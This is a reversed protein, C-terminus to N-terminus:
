ERSKMRFQTPTMSTKRTFLRTFYSWDEYGLEIAIEKVNMQTNFLMRKAQIIIENQIYETATLGSIRNTIENLYAPTINLKRAYDSSSKMTKQCSSVLARFQSMIAFPRGTMDNKIGKKCIEAIIGTYVSILSLTIEDFTNLGSMRRDLLSLCDDLDQMHQKDPIIGSKTSVNWLIYEDETRVLAKDVLLIWSDSDKYEILSHMQGPQIFFISPGYIQYTEFDIIGKAYGAKMYAFIYYNDRHLYQLPKESSMGNVHKLYAPRGNFQKYIDHLPVKEM